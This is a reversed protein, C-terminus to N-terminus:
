GAARANSAPDPWQSREYADALTMLVDLRDGEPTNAEAGWLREIEALIRHHDADDRTSATHDTM